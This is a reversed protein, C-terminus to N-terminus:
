NNLNIYEKWLKFHISNLIDNHDVELVECVDKLAQYDFKPTGKEYKSLTQKTLKHQCKNAVYELTYGRNNRLERLKKGLETYFFRDLPDM